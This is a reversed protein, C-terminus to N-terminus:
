AARARRLDPLLAAFLGLAPLFACLRFVFQLSTHDVLEGLVAAGLGGLGFAFGFFV